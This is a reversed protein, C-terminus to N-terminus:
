DEAAKTGSLKFDKLPWKLNVRAAFLLGQIKEANDFNVRSRSFDTTTTM